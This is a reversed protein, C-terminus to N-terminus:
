SAFCEPRSRTTLQTGGVDETVDYRVVVPAHDSWREAYSSARDTEAKVAREALGASAIQYDIRWGSDLDFAKGRWSWWSYPGPGEGSLARVVDVWAGDALLRDFWAREQPLFGAKKLNGKWNKLDAERHAVNLDGTLLVHRGDAALAQLRVAVAGLFAEKELQRQTGAEGTHVYASVVTLLRDGADLDAEVWRGTGDFGADPAEARTPAPLGTRVAVPPTRTAVAVGARGRASAEQHIVSWGDGLAAALDADSGRVEQLCLVDPAREELWPRMGRRVAARVGNVNVSAVTLV